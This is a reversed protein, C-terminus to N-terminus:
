KKESPREAAKSEARDSRTAGADARPVEASKGKGDTKMEAKAKGADSKPADNGATKGTKGDGKSMGPAGVSETRESRRASEGAKTARLGSGAGVSIERKIVDFTSEGIGPVNKIDEISRFPGNKVRYDVIAKAKVPGIGKLKDFEDATATNIDLAAFAVQVAVFLMLLGALLQRFM